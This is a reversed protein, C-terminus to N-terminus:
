FGLQSGHSIYFLCYVDSLVRMFSPSTRVSPSVVAWGGGGTCKNYVTSVRPLSANRPPLPSHSVTVAERRIYVNFSFVATSCRAWKQLLPQALWARLKVPCLQVQEKRLNPATGFEFVCSIWYMQQSGVIHLNVREGKSMGL